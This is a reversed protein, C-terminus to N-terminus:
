YNFKPMQSIIPISRVNLGSSSLSPFQGYNYFYVTPGFYFTLSATASCVSYSVKRAIGLQAYSTVYGQEFAFQPGNPGGIQRFTGGGSVLGGGVIPGVVLNLEGIASATMTGDYGMRAHFEFLFRLQPLTTGLLAAIVGPTGYTSDLHVHFASVYGTTADTGYIPGPLISQTYSSMSGYCFAFISGPVGCGRFDLSGGPIQCISHPVLTLCFLHHHHHDARFSFRVPLFFLEFPTPLKVVAIYLTDKVAGDVRLVVRYTGTSSIRHTPVTIYNYYDQTGQASLLDQWLWQGSTEGNAWNCDM